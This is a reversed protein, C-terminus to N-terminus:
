ATRKKRGPKITKAIERLAEIDGETYLDVVLRGFERQSSPVFVKQRKWRKLTDIDRGVLAAAQARTYRPPDMLRVQEDIKM